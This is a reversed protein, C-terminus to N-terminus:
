DGPFLLALDLPRLVGAIVHVTGGDTALITRGFAFPDLDNTDDDALGVLSFFPRKIEFTGDSLDLDPLQTLTEVSRSKPRRLDPIQAATAHYRITESLAAAGSIGPALDPGGAITLLTNLVDAESLKWIPTNTLDAVLGRFSADAPAFVTGTFGTLTAAITPGTPDNVADFPLASAAALLIDQDNWNSDTPSDPPNNAASAVLIDVISAPQASGTAAATSAVAASGALAAGAVLAATLKRIRM